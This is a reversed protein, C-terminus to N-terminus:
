GVPIDSKRSLHVRRCFAASTECHDTYHCTCSGPFPAAGTDYYHSDMTSIGDYSININKLPCKFPVVNCPNTRVRARQDEELSHGHGSSQNPANSQSCPSPAVENSGEGMMDAYNADNPSLNDVKPAEEGHCPPVPQRAEFHAFPVGGTPSGPAIYEEEHM